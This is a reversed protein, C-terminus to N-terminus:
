DMLGDINGGGGKGSRRVKGNRKYQKRPSGWNFGSASLDKGGPRNIPSGLRSPCGRACLMIGPTYYPKFLYKSFSNVYKAFSIRGKNNVEEGLKFSNSLLFTVLYVKVEKDPDETDVLM